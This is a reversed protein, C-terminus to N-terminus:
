EAEEHLLAAEKPGIAESPSLADEPRDVPQPKQALCMWHEGEAHVITAADVCVQVLEIGVEDAVYAIAERGALRADLEFLKIELRPDFPRLRHEAGAADRGIVTAGGLDVVQQRDCRNGFRYALVASKDYDDRREIALDLCGLTAKEGAFLAPGQAFSGAAYTCGGILLVAVRLM